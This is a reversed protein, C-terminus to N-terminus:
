KPLSRLLEQAPKFGSQISLATNLAARAEDFRKARALIAARSYPINPNAPDLSEARGLATLAEPTKQIAGLALGLNFWADAYQPDLKVTEQFAAVANTM